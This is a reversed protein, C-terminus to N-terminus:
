GVLGGLTLIALVLLWVVMARVILDLADYNEKVSSQPAVALAKLGCDVLIDRSSAKFDLAYKRWAQFSEVFQGTLVYALSLLRVPIWDLIKQLTIAAELLGTDKETEVASHSLLVTGRYLLAGVPGLVMFWFIVGFLRPSAQWVVAETVARQLETANRPMECEFFRQAYLYAAEADEREWAEFYDSLQARLNQPGLCYLLVLVGLLFDLFGYWVGSLMWQLLWLLVLLPVLILLVAGIGQWISWKEGHHQLKHRYSAFWNFRYLATGIQLYRELILVLILTILLM